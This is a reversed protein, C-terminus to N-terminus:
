REDETKMYHLDHNSAFLILCETSLCAKTWIVRNTYVGKHMPQLSTMNVWESEVGMIITNEVKKTRYDKKCLWINLIRPM